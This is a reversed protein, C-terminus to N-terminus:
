LWTELIVPDDGPMPMLKVLGMEVMQDQIKGLDPCVMISATPVNNIFCRAVFNNPFDSPHDYVVWIQLGEDVRATM